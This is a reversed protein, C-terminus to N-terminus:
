LSPLSNHSIVNFGSRTPNIYIKNPTQGDYQRSLKTNITAKMWSLTDDNVMKGGRVITNGNLSRDRQINSANIKYDSGQENPGLIIIGPFLTNNISAVPGELPPNYGRGNTLTHVSYSISGPYLKDLESRYRPFVQQFKHCSPCIDWLLIVVKISM